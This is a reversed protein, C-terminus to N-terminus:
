ETKLLQTRAPHLPPNGQYGPIFKKLSRVSHGSGDFVAWDSNGTLDLAVLTSERQLRGDAVQVVSKYPVVVITAKGVTVPRLPQMLEFSLFKEGRIIALEKDHLRMKRAREREEPKEFMAKPLLNV